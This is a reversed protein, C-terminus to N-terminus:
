HSVYLLAHAYDDRLIRGSYGSGTAKVDLRRCLERLVEFGLRRLYTITIPASNSQLAEFAAAVAQDETPPAM